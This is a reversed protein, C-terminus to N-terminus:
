KPKLVITYIQKSRGSGTTINFPIFYNKKLTNNIEKILDHNKIM